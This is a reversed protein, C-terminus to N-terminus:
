LILRRPGRYRGHRATRAQGGRSAADRQNCDAHVPGIWATRQDNLGLAWPQGPHIRRTPHICRGSSGNGPLGQQCSAHGADVTPRWREKEARHARRQAANDGSLTATWM